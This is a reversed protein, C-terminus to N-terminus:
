TTPASLARAAAEVIRRPPVNISSAAIRQTLSSLFIPSVILM